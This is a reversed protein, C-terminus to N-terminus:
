GPLKGSYGAPHRPEGQDQPGPPAFDRLVQARTRGATVAAVLAPMATIVADRASNEGFGRAALAVKLDAANEAIDYIENRTLTM